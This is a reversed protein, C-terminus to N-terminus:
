EYGMFFAIFICLSKCVFSLGSISHCTIRGMQWNSNGIPASGPMQCHSFKCTTTQQSSTQLKVDEQVPCTQHVAKELLSCILFQNKLNGLLIKVWAWFPECNRVIFFQCCIYYAYTSLLYDISVFIYTLDNIDAIWNMNQLLNNM